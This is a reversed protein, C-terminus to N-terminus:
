EYSLKDVYEWYEQILYLISTLVIRITKKNKRISYCLRNYRENLEMKFYVVPDLLVKNHQELLEEHNM